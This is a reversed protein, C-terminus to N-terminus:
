IIEMGGLFDGFDKGDAASVIKPYCQKVRHETQKGNCGEKDSSLSGLHRCRGTKTLLKQGFGTTQIILAIQAPHRVVGNLELLTMGNKLNGAFAASSSFLLALEVSLVQNFESEAWGVRAGSATSAPVSSLINDVHALKDLHIKLKLFLLPKHLWQRSSCSHFHWRHHPKRSHM